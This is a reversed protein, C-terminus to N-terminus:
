YPAVHNSASVTLCCQFHMWDGVNSGWKKSDRGLNRFGHHEMIDVFPQYIPKNIISSRESSKGTSYLNNNWYNFDIALGWEHVSQSNTRWSCALKCVAPVISGINPGYHNLVDKLANELREKAYPHIYIYPVRGGKYGYRWTAGTGSEVMMPYGEPVMAKALQGIGSRKGGWVTKGSKVQKQPLIKHPYVANTFKIPKSLIEKELASLNGSINYNMNISSTGTILAGAGSVAGGSNNKQKCFDDPLKHGIAKEAKERLSPDVFFRVFFQNSAPPSVIFTKFMSAPEGEKNKKGKVEEPGYGSIEGTIHNYGKDACIFKANTERWKAGGDGDILGNIKFLDKLESLACYAGMLDVVGKPGYDVVKCLIVKGSTASTPVTIEATVCLKNAMKAFDNAAWEIDPYFEKLYETGQEHNIACGVKFQKETIADLLEYSEPMSTRGSSLYGTRTSENAGGDLCMTYSGGNYEVPFASFATFKLVCVQAEKDDVFIGKLSASPLSVESSGGFYGGSGGGEYISSDMDGVIGGTGGGGAAVPQANVLTLVDNSLAELNLSFKANAM